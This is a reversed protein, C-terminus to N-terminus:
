RSADPDHGTTITALARKPSPASEEEWFSRRPDPAACLSLSDWDGPSIFGFSSMRSFSSPSCRTRRGRSSGIVYCSDLRSQLMWYRLGRHM